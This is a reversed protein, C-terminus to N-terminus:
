ILEVFGEMFSPKRRCKREGAGFTPRVIRM